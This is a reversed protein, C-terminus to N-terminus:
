KRSICFRMSLWPHPSLAKALRKRLLYVDKLMDVNRYKHSRSPAWSYTPTESAEKVM